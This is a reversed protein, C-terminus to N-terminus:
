RPEGIESVEALLRGSLMVGRFEAWQDPDMTLTGLKPRAGQEAQAPTGAWIRVHVHGGLHEAQIKWRIDAM